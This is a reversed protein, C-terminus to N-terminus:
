EFLRPCANTSRRNNRNRAHPKHWGCLGPWNQRGRLPATIMLHAPRKSGSGPEATAQFLAQRTEGSRHRTRPSAGVHRLKATRMGVKLRKQDGAPSTRPRCAPGAMEAHSLSAHGDQAELEAFAEAMGDFWPRSNDTNPSSCTKDKEKHLIAGRINSHTSEV